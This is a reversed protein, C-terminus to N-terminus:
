PATPSTPSLTTSVVTALAPNTVQAVISTQSVASPIAVAERKIKGWLGARRWAQYAAVALAIVGVLFVVPAVGLAVRAKDTLAAAFSANIWISLAYGIAGSAVSFFVTTETNLTSLMEMESEHVPYCKMVRGMYQPQVVAGAGADGFTPGGVM